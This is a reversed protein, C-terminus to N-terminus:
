ARRTWFLTVVAMLAPGIFLGILGWTEIGGLIGFLVMLFPMNTSGGILRPRVFHDAMFIVSLGFAFIILADIQSQALALLGAITVVIIACFPLMAAIATAITLLAPHPLGFGFYALGILIGEGIGVLVLGSITGHISNIVQLFIPEGAPGILQMSLERARRSLKKGNKLFFFLTVITFLVLTAQHAAHLAFAQGHQLSPNQKLSTYTQKLADSTALHSNWWGAIQDHAFPLQNIWDPAPLGNQGIDSLWQILPGAEVAAHFSLWTVPLIFILAVITTLVIASTVEGCKLKAQTGLNIPWLGIAFVAAWALAPFFSRVTYGAIALLTAVLVAGAAAQIRLPLNQM